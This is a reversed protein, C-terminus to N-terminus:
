RKEGMTESNQPTARSGDVAPQDHATAKLFAILAARQRTDTMKQLPMKSGPTLVDPGLEFLKAVTEESWVIDLKKLSDSYPYGPLTAIRRGFINHLTPGARNRGDHGLTHCISCKRAFQLEGEALLDDSGTARGIQFRRPFEGQVPEFAARPAVQWLTAFDDLGGYYMGAGGAVFALAWVPGYPNQYAEIPLGDDARYVRITGSGDGSAILGPKEIVDLSLMPREGAQLETVTGSTVDLIGTTGNLAGFLLRDGIRELVNVGWGHKYLPRVLSGDNRRYLSITGDVSATAVHAADGLFAVANVPGKHGELVPGPQLGELDWVRATRDWSASAAWRGNASVALGVVKAQHGEFRHLLKGAALDWVAVKGDDGAALARDSGPVFAVANVAGGHDDLRLLRRPPESSIDWLMMTYDFSGTLARGSVQDVRIAKIPGGHGVLNGVALRRASTEARKASQIHTLATSQAHATTEPEACLMAAAVLAWRTGRQRQFEGGRQPNPGPPSPWSDM